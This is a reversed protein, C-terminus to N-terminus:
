LFRLVKAPLDWEGAELGARLRDAQARDLGRFVDRVSVGHAPRHVVAVPDGARIAGKRVVRLYCGTDGREAFRAVWNEEDMARGFTSCPVRPLTAELVVDRGVRWREGVIAGSADIGRLRLNEGFLGPPIDRGLEAAWRAADEEAYAYVAQDEGGHHARDAQVDAYVGLPGVKVAGGAPRKDIATVGVPGSDPRLAHVRCVAVLEGTATGPVPQRPIAPAM